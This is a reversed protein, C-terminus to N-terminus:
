PIITKNCKPCRYVYEKLVTDYHKRYKHKCFYQRIKLILSFM